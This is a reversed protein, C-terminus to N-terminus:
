SRRSSIMADRGCSMECPPPVLWRRLYPLVDVAGGRCFGSPLSAAYSMLLSPACQMGRMRRFSARWAARRRRQRGRTSQGWSSCARRRRSSHRRLHRATVSRVWSCSIPIRVCRAACRMPFPLLIGGRKGSVSFPVIQPLFMNSPIRLHSSISPARITSRMSSHPLRRRREQERREASSCSDM